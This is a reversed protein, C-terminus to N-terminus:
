ELAIHATLVLSSNHTGGVPFFPVSEKPLRIGYTIMMMMMMMMNAAAAIFDNRNPGKLRNRKEPVIGKPIRSLFSLNM